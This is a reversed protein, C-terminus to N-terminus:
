CPTAEPWGGVRALEGSSGILRAAVRRETLWGTAAVGLVIAATSCTNAQLATDAAM